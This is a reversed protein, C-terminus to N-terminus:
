SGSDWRAVRRQLLPSFLTRCLFRCSNMLTRSAGRCPYGLPPIHCTDCARVLEKQGEARNSVRGRRREGESDGGGSGCVHMAWGARVGEGRGVQAVFEGEDINHAVVVAIVQTGFVFYLM